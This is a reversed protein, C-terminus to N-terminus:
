KWSEYTKLLGKDFPTWQLHRLSPHPDSLPMVRPGIRKETEFTIPLGPHVRDRIKEALDKITLVEDSVIYQIGQAGEAILTFVAKVLDEVYLFMREEGGTGWVKLTEKATRAKMMLAPIVNGDEAFTDRPGYVGVPRVILLPFTRQRSSAFWLAEALAKGLVYGDVSEKQALALTDVTPPVNATSFFTVPIAMEAEKLAELLAITMRVNEQAVDGCRDHHYKANRRCSAMHFIEDAGRVLGLCYAPDRLDGEMWEIEARRESLSRYNASRIPVRVNAGWELLQEVLFSGIFGTGGTVLVTKGKFRKM